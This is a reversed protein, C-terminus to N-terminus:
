RQGTAAYTVLHRSRAFDGISDLFRDRRPPTPVGVWEVSIQSGQVDGLFQAWRQPHRHVDEADADLVACLPSGYWAAIAELFMAIARPHAPQFPLRAKLSTGVQPESLMLQVFPM